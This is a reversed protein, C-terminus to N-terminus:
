TQLEFHEDNLKSVRSCGSSDSICRSYPTSHECFVPTNGIQLVAQRWYLKEDDPDNSISKFVGYLVQDTALADSFGAVM